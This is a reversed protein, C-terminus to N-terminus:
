EKRHQPTRFIADRYAASCVAAYKRKGHVMMFVSLGLIFIVSGGGVAISLLRQVSASRDAAITNFLSFVSVFAGAISVTKAASLIPSGNKRLRISARLALAPLMVTYATCVVLVAKSYFYTRGESATLIVVGIMSLGLAMVFVGAHRYISWAYKSRKEQMKEAHRYARILFLRNASLMLYYLSLVLLPESDYRNATVMHFVAYGLNLAGGGYLAFLTRFTSDLCIRCLISFHAFPKKKFISLYIKSVKKKVGKGGEKTQGIETNVLCFCFISQWLLANLSDELTKKNVSANAKSKIMQSHNQM